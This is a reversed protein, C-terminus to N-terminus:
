GLRLTLQIESIARDYMELTAPDIGPERSVRFLQAVAVDVIRAAQSKFSPNISMAAGLASNLGDFIRQDRMGPKRIRSAPQAAFCMTDIKDVAEAYMEASEAFKQTGYLFEAEQALREPLQIGEAGRPSKKFGSFLGM